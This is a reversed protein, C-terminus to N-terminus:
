WLQNLPWLAHFNITAPWCARDIFDLFNFLGFLLAVIVSRKCVWMHEDVKRHNLRWASAKSVLCWFMASCAQSLKLHDLSLVLSSRFNSPLKSFQYIQLLYFHWGYTAPDKGISLNAQWVIVSRILDEKIRRKGCFLAGVWEPGDPDWCDAGWCFFFSDITSRVLYMCCFMRTFNWPPRSTVPMRLPKSLSKFKTSSSVTSYM